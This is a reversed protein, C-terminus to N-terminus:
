ASLPAPVLSVDWLSTPRRDEQVQTRRSEPRRTLTESPKRPSDKKWETATPSCRRLLSLIALLYGHTCVSNGALPWCRPLAAHWCCSFGHSSHAARPCMGGAASIPVFLPQRKGAKMREGGDGDTLDTQLSGSPFM